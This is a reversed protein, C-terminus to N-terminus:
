PVALMLWLEQAGFLRVLPAGLGIVALSCGVAVLGLLVAYEAMVSGRNDAFHALVSNHHSEFNGSNM